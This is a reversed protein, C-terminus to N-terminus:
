SFVGVYGWPFCTAWQRFSFNCCKDLIPPLIRVFNLIRYSNILKCHSFGKNQVVLTARPIPLAFHGKQPSPPICPTKLVDPWAEHACNTGWLQNQVLVTTGQSGWERALLQSLPLGGPKHPDLRLDENISPM